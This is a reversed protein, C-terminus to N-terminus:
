AGHEVFKYIVIDCRSMYLGPMIIMNTYKGKLPKLNVCWFNLISDLNAILQVCNKEKLLNLLEYSNFMNMMILYPYDYLLEISTHNMSGDFWKLGPGLRYIGCVGTLVNFFLYLPRAHSALSMEICFPLFNAVLLLTESCRNVLFYGLANLFIMKHSIYYCVINM